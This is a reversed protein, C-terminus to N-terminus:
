EHQQGAEGDLTLGALEGFRARAAELAADFSMDIRRGDKVIVMGGLLMDGELVNLQTTQEKRRLANVLDFDERRMYVEAIGGRGLTDLAQGLMDALRAPYKKGATFERVRATVEEATEEAWAQRQQLLTRRNEAAQAAVSVAGANRVQGLERERYRDAAQQAQVRAKELETRQRATVDASLEELEQRSQTEITELFYKLTEEM